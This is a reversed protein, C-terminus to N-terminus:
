PDPRNKGQIWARNVTEDSLDAKLHVEEFFDKGVVRVVVRFGTVQISYKTNFVIYAYHPSFNQRLPWQIELGLVTGACLLCRKLIFSHILTHFVFSLHFLM